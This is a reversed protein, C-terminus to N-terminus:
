EQKIWSITKIEGYQNNIQVWYTGISLHSLDLSIINTQYNDSFFLKRGSLDFVSVSNIKEVCRITILGDSPNPFLEVNNDVRTSESNEFPSNMSAETLANGAVLMSRPNLCGDSSADLVTIFGSYIHPVNNCDFLKLSYFYTGDNLCPNNANCFFGQNCNGDWVRFQFSNVLGSSQYVPNNNDFISLEWLKVGEASILWSDNEM